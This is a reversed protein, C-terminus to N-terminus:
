SRARTKKMIDCKKGSTKQGGRALLSRKEEKQMLRRRGDKEGFICVREREGNLLGTPSDDAKRERRSEREITNRERTPPSEQMIQRFRNKGGAAYKDVALGLRM